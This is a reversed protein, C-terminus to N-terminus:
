EYQGPVTKIHCHYSLQMLVEMLYSADELFINNKSLIFHQIDLNYLAVHLSSLAFM